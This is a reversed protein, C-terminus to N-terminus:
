FSVTLNIRGNFGSTWGSIKDSVNALQSYTSSKSIAIDYEPAFGLSLHRLIAFDVKCGIGLNTSYGRYATGTIAEGSLSVLGIGLQPTFRFRTGAAIGCGIKLGFSTPKYTAHFFEASSGNPSNWYIDESKSLGMYYYGEVNFNHIYGGLSAGVGMLSGVQGGAALYVCSKRIYSHTEKKPSDPVVNESHVEEVTPTEKVPTDLIPTQKKAKELTVSFSRSDANVFITREYTLYDDAIVKITHSGMKLRKSGTVTGMNEGDVLLIAASVNCSFNVDYVAPQPAPHKGNYPCNEVLEGCEACKPHEGKYQCQSLVKGCTACKKEPQTKQGTSKQKKAPQKKDTRSKQETTKQRQRTITGQGMVNLTVLCLLFLLFKSKM